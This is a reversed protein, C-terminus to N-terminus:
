FPVEDEGKYVSTAPMPGYPKKVEIQDEALFDPDVANRFDTYEEFFSMPMIGIKGHRNKRWILEADRFTSNGNEDEKIDYYYPRYLFGFADADQEFEGSDRADSLMPRKDGGRTEVGRSLQLLAVVPVELEKAVQKLTRSVLGMETTRNGLHGSVTMLQVYDIGIWKAGLRVMERAKTRFSMIDLGATDDIFIPLDGIGEMKEKVKEYEFQTEMMRPDRFRLGNVQAEQAGMRDASQDASMELMFLGAGYGLKSSNRAMSLLLASKGMGPRAGIYVLDTKRLGLLVSDFADLGVPVGIMKGAELARIEEYWKLRRDSVDKMTEVTGSGTAGIQSLEFAFQSVRDLLVFADEGEEFASSAIKGLEKIIERKVYMEHLVASHYEVNASSVVKYSLEALYAAGGVQELTGLSKLEKMVMLVDIPLFKTRLSLIAKYIIQHKPVYFTEPRIFRNVVELATSTILIAGLVAEELDVAQPPLKSYATLSPTKAGADRRTHTKTM